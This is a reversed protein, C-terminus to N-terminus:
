LLRSLLVSALDHEPHHLEAHCNHCVLICKTLEHEIRELKRNSLSRIDLKFIKHSPNIHHFTLASINKCYGCMSCKGGFKNIITLKRSIGRRKQAAYSQHSRNKCLKSCFIKQKGKLDTKCIKCSRFYNM